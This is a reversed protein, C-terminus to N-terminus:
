RWPYSSIRILFLHKVYLVAELMFLEYFKDQPNYKAPQLM